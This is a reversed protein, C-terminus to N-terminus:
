TIKFDGDLEMKRPAHQWVTESHRELIAKRVRRIEIPMLIILLYCSFQCKHASKEKLRKKSVSECTQHCVTENTQVYCNM